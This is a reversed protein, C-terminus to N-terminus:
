AAISATQSHVKQTHARRTAARCTTLDLIAHRQSRGAARGGSAGLQACQHARTLAPLHGGQVPALVARPKGAARRGALKGCPRV